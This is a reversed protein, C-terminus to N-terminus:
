ELQVIALTDSTHDHGIVSYGVAFAGAQLEPYVPVLKDSHHAEVAKPIDYDIKKYSYHDADHCSVCKDPELISTGSPVGAGAVSFYGFFGAFMLLVSLFLLTPFFKIKFMKPRGSKKLNILNGVVFNIM